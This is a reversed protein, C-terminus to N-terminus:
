LFKNEMFDMLYMFLIEKDDYSLNTDKDLQTYVLIGIDTLKNIEAVENSSLTNYNFTNLKPEKVNSFSTSKLIDGDLSKLLKHTSSQQPNDILEGLRYKFESLFTDVQSKDLGIEKDLTYKDILDNYMDQIDDYTVQNTDLKFFKEYMVGTIKIPLSCLKIDEPKNSVLQEASVKFYRCIKLLIDSDIFFNDITELKKIESEKVNIDLALKARSVKKKNRLTKLGELKM